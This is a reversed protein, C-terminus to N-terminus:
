TAPMGITAKALAEVRRAGASSPAWETDELLTEKPSKGKLATRKREFWRRIGYENYTGKLYGVVLALWHLREVVPGPAERDGRAYRQVSTPSIRLLEALQEVAFVKLLAKAEQQPAPNEGLTEFLGKFEEAVRRPDSTPDSLARQINVVYSTGIQQHQLATLFDDLRRGLDVEGSTALGMAEGRHLALLAAPMELARLVPGTRPAYQTKRM